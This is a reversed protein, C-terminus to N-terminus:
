SFVNRDEPSIAIALLSVEVGQGRQWPRRRENPHRGWVEVSGLGLSLASGQRIHIQM